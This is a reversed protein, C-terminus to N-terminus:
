DARLSIASEKTIYEIVPHAIIHTFDKYILKICDQGAPASCLRSDTCQRLGTAAIGDDLVVSVEIRAVMKDILAVLDSINKLCVETGQHVRCSLHAETKVFSVCQRIITNFTLPEEGAVTLTRFVAEVRCVFTFRAEIGEAFTVLEEEGV